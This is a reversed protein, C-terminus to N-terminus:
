RHHRTLLDAVTDGSITKLTASCTECGLFFVTKIDNLRLRGDVVDNSVEHGCYWKLNGSGCDGCVSVVDNGM